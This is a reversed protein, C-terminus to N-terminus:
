CCYVSAAIIQKLDCSQDFNPVAVFRGTESMYELYTESVHSIFVMEDEIPMIDDDTVLGFLYDCWIEM